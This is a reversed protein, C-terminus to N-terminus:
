ITWDYPNWFSTVAHAPRYNKLDANAVSIRRVFWPIVAPVEDAWIRQAADYARKRVARDNSGLAIREQRDFERNCFHGINQGHPPFQDCMYQVSDDPDTGNLWSFFAIDFKGTQLIGGEGFSAFALSSTFNKLQLDIGADHWNRQALADVADGVASGSIGAVTLTLRAGNKVRIGDSGRKWGAADLLAGARAADFPYRPIDPNYAWSFTPQDTHGPVDVGHTVDRIIAPIDLAYWLAKRVRVDALAPTRENLALQGFQTFATLTTRYGAIARSQSIKTSPSNYDLDAEHTQLLTEVTNENPIAEYTITRLKPVGRWYKPNARFVIRSGRHWREVIFPGTGVPQSNFPVRNIDAYGALLHEPLIPYPTASPAFFSAVFPAWASKLHVAITHPDRVDIGSVIDYGVTSTVNNSKNLVAHWTFVVDNATFPKGDHWLVGPRLHYVITKGDASIGGNALTPVETALEPVFENKDSWNLLMGGWFNALDSDIQSNGLLPNLTDPEVLNVIRLVGPRTWANVRGNAGGGSATTGVRSCGALTGLTWLTAFLLGFPRRAM